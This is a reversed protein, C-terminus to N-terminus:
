QTLWGGDVYLITGTIYDAEASALFLVANAIDRPQGIRKLPIHNLFMEVRAPNSLSNATMATEIVGPGVANVNINYPALDLAMAKTLMLLGGKSSVYHAQGPLAIASNISAINVIKGGRGAQAMERAVAQSCLFPGKLNVALIRDWESEPLELFPILTEVGANNVLIDIQGFHQLTTKVITEVQSRQSVDAKVLLAQGGMAEIMAVTKGAGIESVDAVVIKAGEEALRLAIGWGNGSGAGTVIAVKDQLRM